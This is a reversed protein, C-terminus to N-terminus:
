ANQKADKMSVVEFDVVGRITVAGSTVELYSGWGKLPLESNPKVELLPVYPETRYYLPSSLQYNRIICSKWYGMHRTFMDIKQVASDIAMSIGFTQMDLADAPKLTGNPVLSM